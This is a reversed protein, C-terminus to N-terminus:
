RNWLNWLFIRLRKWCWIRLGHAMISKNVVAPFNVHGLREHGLRLMNQKSDAMNRRVGQSTQHGNQRACRMSTRICSVLLKWRRIVSLVFRKSTRDSILCEALKRLVLGAKVQEHITMTGQGIVPKIFVEREYTKHMSAGSETLWFEEDSASMTVKCPSETCQTSDSEHNKNTCERGSCVRKNVM